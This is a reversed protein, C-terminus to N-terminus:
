AYANWTFWSHAVPPGVDGPFQSIQRGLTPCSAQRLRWGDAGRFKICGGKAPLPSIGMGCVDDAGHETRRRAFVAAATPPESPQLELTAVPARGLLPSRYRRGNSGVAM